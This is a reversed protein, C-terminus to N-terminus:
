KFINKIKILIKRFLSEKYEIMSNKQCQETYQNNTKLSNKFLNDPSYKEKQFREFNEDNLEWNNKIEKKEVKDAIYLYYILSILDKSKESIKQKEFNKNPDVFFDVISDSAEECLKVIVNSPIKKIMEDDFFALFTLTEKSIDNITQINEM